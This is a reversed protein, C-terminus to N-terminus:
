LYSKIVSGISLGISKFEDSSFVDSKANNCWYCIFTCNDESYEKDEKRDIELNKGRTTKRKSTTREYFSKIEIDTSNCYFCKKETKIYWKIFEERKWFKELDYGPKKKVRSKISSYKNSAIKEEKSYESSM